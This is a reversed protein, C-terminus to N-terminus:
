RGAAEIAALVFAAAAVAAMAVKVALIARSRSPSAAPRTFAELAAGALLLPLALMPAVVVGAGYLVVLAASAAHRVSGLFVAAGIAAIAAVTVNAAVYSIGIGAAIIPLRRGAGGRLRPAIAGIPAGALAAVAACVLAVSSTGPPPRAGSALAVTEVAAVAAFVAWIAVISGTLAARM